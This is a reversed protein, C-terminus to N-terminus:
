GTAKRTSDSRCSDINAKSRQWIEGDNEDGCHANDGIRVVTGSVRSTTNATSRCSCSRHVTASGTPCALRHRRLICYSSSHPSCVRAAVTVNTFPNYENLTQQNSSFSFSLKSFHSSLRTEVSVSQATAQRISPEAFPNTDDDM